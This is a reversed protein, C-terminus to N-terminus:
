RPLCEFFAPYREGWTCNLEYVSPYYGPACQPTCKGEHKLVVGEACPGGPGQNPINQPSGCPVGISMQPILFLRDLPYHPNVSGWPPNQNFSTVGDLQEHLLVWPGNRAVGADLRWSVPDRGPLDNATRISYNSIVIERDFAIYLTNLDYDLWKTNHNYDLADHPAEAEPSHYTGYTTALNTADNFDIRYKHFYFVLDSIQVADGPDYSDRIKIPVWRYFKFKLGKECCHDYDLVVVCSTGYCFTDPITVDGYDCTINVCNQAPDCCNDRDFTAECTTRGPVTGGCYSEEDLKNTYGHPCYFNGPYTTPIGGISPPQTIFCAQAATCCTTRDRSLDCVPSDCYLLAVNWRPVDGFPCTLSVCPDADECCTDLDRTSNCELGECYTFNPNPRLVYSYPCGFRSDFTYCTAAVQCCHARDRHVVCPNGDCYDTYNYFMGVACDPEYTVNPAVEKLLMGSCLESAACCEAMDRALDCSTGDGM